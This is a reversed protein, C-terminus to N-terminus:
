IYERYLYKSDMARLIAIYNLYFDVKDGVKYTHKSNTIDLITHDSSGGLITIDKDFPTMWDIAVDQKGVACIARIMDGKDDFHPVEGFANLSIDGIPKSPKKKVEVIETTLKFADIFTDEIRSDTVEVTGLMLATGLRLQNIGKPLKEKQILHFSSSNGGSLTSIDVNFEEKIKKKLVVLKELNEISPLVGGFCSLNTGLGILKIGKLKLIEEVILLIEEEDFIGERLDGVDIMLIIRHIINRKLAEKSLEKITEIESNLSIDAYRVVEEANSIMPLRLLMKEAKIDKLLELSEIRSEGIIKVGGDVLAQATELSASTVKNVGVIEVGLSDCIEVLRKTNHTIKNLDIQLRPYKTEGM